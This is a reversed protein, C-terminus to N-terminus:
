PTSEYEEDIDISINRLRKIQECLFFAFIYADEGNLHSNNACEFYQELETLPYITKDYHYVISESIDWEGRNVLELKFKDICEKIQKLHFIGLKLREPRHTAEIIKKSGYDLTTPFLDALKTDRHKDRHEMEQSELKTIVKNLVESLYQNQIRILVPIDVSISEDDEEDSYVIILEFNTPSISMRHIFCSKSMRNERQHGPHGAASNRIIRIDELPKPRKVKIGLSDCIDEAADQQLLLTQLIGYIILYSAGINDTKCLSPYSLIALETDGILDLSSCLKNWNSSEIILVSQKRNINIFDRIREEIKSLTM